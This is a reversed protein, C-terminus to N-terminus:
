TNEVGIIKEVIIGQIVSVIILTMTLIITYTTGFYIILLPLLPVKIARAYLFTALLGTRMGQKELDHLLPYWMYIPGSSIIGAVITIIWGKVGSKKGLRKTLKKPTIFKNSLALLVFVILFIPLVKLIIDKCFILAEYTKQADFILTIGYLAVVGILFYWSTTKNESM